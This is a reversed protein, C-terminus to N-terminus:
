RVSQIRAEATFPVRDGSSTVLELRVKDGESITSNLDQAMIHMGQPALSVSEGVPIVLSDMHEMVMLGDREVTHHIMVEGAWDASVGTLTVPEATDNEITLYVATPDLGPRLWADTVTITTANGTGTSSCAVTAIALLSVISAIVALYTTKRM